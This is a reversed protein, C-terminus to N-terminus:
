IIEHRLCTFILSLPQNLFSAWGMLLLLAPLVVCKAAKLDFTENQQQSTKCWQRQLCSLSSLPLFWCLPLMFVHFLSSSTAPQLRAASIHTASILIFWLLAWYLAKIENFHWDQCLARVWVYRLVQGTRHLKFHRHLFQQSLLTKTLLPAPFSYRVQKRFHETSLQTM